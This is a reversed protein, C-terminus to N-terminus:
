YAMGIKYLSDEDPDYDHMLHQDYYYYKGVLENQKDLASQENVACQM